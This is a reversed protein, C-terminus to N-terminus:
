IRKNQEFSNWGVETQVLPKEVDVHAHETTWIILTKGYWCIDNHPVMTILPRILAIDQAPLSM